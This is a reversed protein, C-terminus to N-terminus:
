RHHEYREERRRRGAHFAGLMLLALLFSGAGILLGIEIAQTRDLLVAATVLAALWTLPGLTFATIVKTRSAPRLPEFQM